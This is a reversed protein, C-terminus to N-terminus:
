SYDAGLRHATRRAQIWAEQLELARADTVQLLAELQPVSLSRRLRADVRSVFRRSTSVLFLFRSIDPDSCDPDALAPRHLTRDAVHDVDPSSLFQDYKALTDEIDERSLTISSKLATAEQNHPQSRAVFIAVAMIIAALIFGEYRLFYVLLVCGLIVVAWPWWPERNDHDLADLDKM